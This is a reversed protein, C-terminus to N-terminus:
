GALSHILEQYFFLQRIPMFTMGIDGSSFRCSGFYHKGRAYITRCLVVLHKVHTRFIIM